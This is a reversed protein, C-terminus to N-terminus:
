RVTMNKSSAQDNSGHSSHRTDKVHAVPPPLSATDGRKPDLDVDREVEESTKSQHGDVKSCVSVPLSLATVVLVLFRLSRLRSKARTHM